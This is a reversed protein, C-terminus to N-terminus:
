VIMLMTKSAIAMPTMLVVMVMLITDPQMKLDVITWTTTYWIAMLIMLVVMEM